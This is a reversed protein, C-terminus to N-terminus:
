LTNRAFILKKVIVFVLHIMLKQQWQDRGVPQCPSYCQFGARRM